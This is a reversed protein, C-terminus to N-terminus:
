MTRIWIYINMQPRRSTKLNESNENILLLNCLFNTVSNPRSCLRYQSERYYVVIPYSESSSERRRETTTSVHYRIEPIMCYPSRTVTTMVRRSKNFDSNLEFSCQSHDRVKRVVDRSIKLYVIEESKTTPQVTVRSSHKSRRGRYVSRM